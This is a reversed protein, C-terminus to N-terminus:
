GTSADSSTSLAKGPADEDDPAEAIQADVAALMLDRQGEDMPVSLLADRLEELEPRSAEVVLEDSIPDVDEIKIRGPHDLDLLHWLLVRRASAQNQLVAMRWQEIAVSKEGILRAYRTEIMAGRSLRLRGPRFEWRTPAESGEPSYTVYM